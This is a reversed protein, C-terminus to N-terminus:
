RVQSGKLIPALRRTPLLYALDEEPYHAAAADTINYKSVRIFPLPVSPNVAIYCVDLM